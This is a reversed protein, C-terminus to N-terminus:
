NVRVLAEFESLKKLQAANLQLKTNELQLEVSKAQTIQKFVDYKMRTAITELYDQDARRKDLNLMVVADSVKVGDATVKMQIIDSYKYGGTSLLSLIFVVDEPQKKLKEGPFTTSISVFATGPATNAFELLEIEIKTQNKSRDYETTIQTKTDTKKASDAASAASGSKGQAAAFISLAGLLFATLLSKIIIKM